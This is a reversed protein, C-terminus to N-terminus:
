YGNILVETIRKLTSNSLIINIVKNELTKYSIKRQTLFLMKVNKKRCQFIIKNLYQWNYLRNQCQAGEEKTIRDKKLPGMFTKKDEVVQFSHLGFKSTPDISKSDDERPGVM